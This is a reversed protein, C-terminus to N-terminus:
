NNMQEEARAESNKRSELTYVYERALRNDYRTYAEQSWKIAEDLNGLVEYGVAINYALYGARKKDAMPLAKKWTEIAEEWQNVDALRSGAKIGPAKKNKKYYSRVVNVPMPAIKYAYDSGVRGSLERTAKTKSILAAVAGAKSDATARWTDTKNLFQEDIIRHNVQDYLRIGIKLNCVGKARYENVEITRKNDGSGVTKKVRKKTDTVIFDSDFVEIAVVAQANYQACLDDITQWDLQQPFAGGLITNGKLRQSSSNVDFRPSVQIENRLRSILEQVAAKDENIGEGTLIGEIIGLAEKEPKTRDVLLINHINKDLHIDAPRVMNM